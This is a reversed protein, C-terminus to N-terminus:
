EGDPKGRMEDVPVVRIGFEGSSDVGIHIAAAGDAHMNSLAERLKARINDRVPVGSLMLRNFELPPAKMTQLLDLQPKDWQAGSILAATAFEEPTLPRPIFAVWSREEFDSKSEFWPTGGNMRQVFYGGVVASNDRVWEPWVEIAHIGEDTRVMIKIRRSKEVMVIDMIIGARVRETREYLKLEMPGASM